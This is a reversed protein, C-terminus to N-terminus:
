FYTLQNIVSKLLPDIFYYRNNKKELFDNAELYDLARLVTAGSLETQALFQIGTLEENMGHAISVLLKKHVLTLGKTEALLDQKKAYVLHNWVMDINSITPLTEHSFLKDCVCNIYYPHRETYQFIKDIVSNDLTKNWQSSAFKQIFLEYDQESIRDLQIEDCLRYLPTNKNNFMNHLLHRRSGSFILTFHKTDQAVHRIAGEIGQDPAVLQIEQFEDILLVAHMKKKKLVGDLIQLAECINLSSAVKESTELKLKFGHSGAEFSPKLVKIYDKLLGLLIEGNNCIQGLVNNVGALIAKEIHHASTTMYLDIRANPLKSENIAKYALSTKGYRRPSILVTHMSNKINRILQKTEASRNCFYENKAIGLPFTIATTLEM